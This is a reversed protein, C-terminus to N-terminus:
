HHKLLILRTGPKLIETEAGNTSIISEPSIRYRKAIDWLTDNKQVFYITMSPCKPLSSTEEPTIESILQAKEPCIAKISLSVIARLTLLRAGDITCGIHETDAKVDCLTDETVGPINFTHSFPLIHTFGAVPSTPDQTLYLLNCTIYGNITVADTTISINEINSSAEYDCLRHIEPLYDPIGVSEKLPCQAATSEILQEITYSAKELNLNGKSCYADEIASCELTSYTSIAMNLTFECSLIRKDGDSDTCIEFYQDCISCEIEGSMCENLGDIEIIESFPITQEIFEPNGDDRCYLASVVIEGNIAAKENTIKMDVACTKASLKLIECISPKGEPIELKEKIVVSRETNICPNYIKMKKNKTFVDPNDDIGTSIDIECTRTLRLSFGAKCKLNLKRSNVLTYDTNSCDADIWLNMDPTAGSVDASHSFDMTFPISKIGRPEDLDPVYLINGRVIGQIYVKDAQITKKTILISNSIQLVKLIDPKIDPVIIDSEVTTQCYKSCVTDSLNIHEKQLKLSM